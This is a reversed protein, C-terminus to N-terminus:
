AAAKWIIKVRRALASNVLKKHRAEFDSDSEEARRFSSRAVGDPFSDVEIREIFGRLATRRLGPTWTRWKSDLDAGAGELADAILPRGLLDTIQTELGQMENAVREVERQAEAETMIGVVFARGAKERELRLSARDAELAELKENIAPDREELRQHWRPTMDLKEILKAWVYEELADHDITVRGTDEWHEVLESRTAEAKSRVRKGAADYYIMRMRPASPHNDHSGNVRALCSLAVQRPKGESPRPKGATILSKECKGCVTLGGGMAYKGGKVGPSHTVKRSPDNFLAQLRDFTREEIIPQWPRIGVKNEGLMARNMLISRLNGSRWHKGARTVHKREPQGPVKASNWDTVIAHLPERNDLVRHIAEEIVAIELPEPILKKDEIRYGYPAPGGLWEGKDAHQRKSRKQREQSRRTEFRAIGALMTARFEGDATSLDIEGDVTVVQAGLSILTNLDQTSRLLRDLDVAIVLNFDKGIRALMQGWGTDPGRPKSAPTENDEFKAVIQWGKAEALATGRKLQAAIGEDRDLSQRLYLAARRPTTTDM